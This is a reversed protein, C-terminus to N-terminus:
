TGQYNQRMRTDCCSWNGTNWSLEALSSVALWRSENIILAVRLQFIFAFNWNPEKPFTREEKGQVDSCMRKQSQKRLGMKTPLCAKILERVKEPWLCMIIQHFMSWRGERKEIWSRYSEQWFGKFFFRCNSNSLSLKVEPNAIPSYNM